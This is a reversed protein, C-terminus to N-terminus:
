IKGKKKKEELTWNVYRNLESTFVRQQWGNKLLLVEEM